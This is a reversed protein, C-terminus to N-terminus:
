PFSFIVYDILLSPISFSDGVRAAKRNTAKGTRLRDM